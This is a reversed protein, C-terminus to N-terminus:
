KTETSTPQVNSISVVEDGHGLCVLRRNAEVLGKVARDFSDYDVYQIGNSFPNQRGKVVLAWIKPFKECKPVETYSVWISEPNWM